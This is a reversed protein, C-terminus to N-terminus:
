AAFFAAAEGRSIDSPPESVVLLTRGGPLQGAAFAQYPSPHNGRFSAWVKCAEDADQCLPDFTKAIPIVGPLSFFLVGALVLVIAAFSCIVWLLVRLVRRPKAM